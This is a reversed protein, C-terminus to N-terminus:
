PLIDLADAGKGVKKLLTLLTDQEEETLASVARRLHRQHQKFAEKILKTGSRTLRVLRVRRDRADSLPIREVMLREVLRDVATTISGSTLLVKKGITNVPLPGKHLLVEMIAFDTNSMGLNSISALAHRELSRKAKFLSLWLRTGTAIGVADEEKKM